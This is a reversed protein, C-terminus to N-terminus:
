TMINTRQRINDILQKRLGHYKRKLFSFIILCSLFGLFIGLHLTRWISSFLIIGTIYFFINLLEVFLIGIAIAQISSFFALYKDLIQLDDIEHKYIHM